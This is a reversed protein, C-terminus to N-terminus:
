HADVMTYIDYKAFRSILSEFESLLTQNYQGPSTEIAEWSIGLRVMNIGISALDLADRDTLSGETNFDQLNPIFPHEKYVVNM